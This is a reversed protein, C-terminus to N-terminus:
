AAGESVLLRAADRHGASRDGAPLDGYVASRIVPHLFELPRRQELVAVSSLADAATTAAAASLGALQAARPLPVDTGLIAVARVLARADAGLAAIRLLVARAITRPGLEHIRRAGEASAPVQEQTCAQLLEGLLFPNGGSAQACEEVFAPDAYADYRERVLSAVSAAGLLGPALVMVTPDCALERLLHADDGGGAPRTGGVVLLPLGDLRRVLFLLYRMSPADAWQLDDALLVLPRDTALNATLWFLGNLATTVEFVPEGGDLGLPAAASRAAGGLLVERQAESAKALAPEMLQRVLGYSHDRELEGARANLVQAGAALAERGAERLLTTKGVGPPGEILVLGGEGRSARALADDFLALERDRDYLM